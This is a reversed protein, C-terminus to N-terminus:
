GEQRYSSRWQAPTQGTLRRMVDNMRHANPFGAEHAIASIKLDTTALLHQARALRARELETRFNTRHGALIRQLSRASLGHARAAEAITATALQRALWGRFVAVVSTKAEALERRRALGEEIAAGDCDPAIAELADSLTPHASVPVNVGVAAKYGVLVSGAIGGGCVIASVRVRSALLAARERAFAALVEYGALDIAHMARVDVISRFSPVSTLEAAMAAAVQEIDDATPSGWACAIRLDPAAFWLVTHATHVARHVPSAVYDALSNLM